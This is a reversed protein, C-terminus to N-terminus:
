IIKIKIIKKIITSEESLDGKSSPKIVDLAVIVVDLKAKSFAKPRIIYPTVTRIINCSMLM